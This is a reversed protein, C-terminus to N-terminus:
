PFLGRIRKSERVREIGLLLKGGGRGCQVLHDAVLDFQQCAMRSTPHDYVQVAPLIKQNKFEPKQDPM